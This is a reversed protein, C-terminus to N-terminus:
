NASALIKTKNSRDIQRTNKELIIQRNTILTIFMSNIAALSFTCKFPEEFYKRKQRKFCMENKNKQCTVNKFSFTQKPLFIWRMDFLLPTSPSPPPPFVMNKQSNRKGNFERLNEGDILLMM